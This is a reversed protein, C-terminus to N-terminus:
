NKIWNMWCSTALYPSLPGGQPCGEETEVVVGNVMVGSELYALILKLVRKDTVKSEVLSMPKTM